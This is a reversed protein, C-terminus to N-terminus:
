EGGKLEKFAELSLKTQVYLKDLESDEISDLTLLLMEKSMEIIKNLKEEKSM